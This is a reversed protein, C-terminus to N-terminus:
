LLARFYILFSSEDLAVERYITLFGAERAITGLKVQMGGLSELLGCHLVESVESKPLLVFM